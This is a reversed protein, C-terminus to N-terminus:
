KDDVEVLVPEIGLEDCLSDLIKDWDVKRPNPRKKGWVSLRIDLAEELAWVRQWVPPLCVAEELSEPRDGDVGYRGNSYSEEFAESLSQGSM